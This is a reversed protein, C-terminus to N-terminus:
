HVMFNGFCLPLYLSIWCQVDDSQEVCCLLPIIVSLKAYNAVLLSKLPFVQAQPLFRILISPFQRYRRTQSINVSVHINM